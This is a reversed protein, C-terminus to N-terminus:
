GATIIVQIDRGRRATVAAAAKTSLLAAQVGVDSGSGVTGGSEDCGGAVADAASVAM